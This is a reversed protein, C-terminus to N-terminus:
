KEDRIFNIMDQELKLLMMRDKTNKNLTKEIFLELDIGTSDTYNATEFSSDVICLTLTLTQLVYLWLKLIYYMKKKTKIFYKKTKLLKIEKYM